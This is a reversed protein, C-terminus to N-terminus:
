VCQHPHQNWYKHCPDVWLQIIQHHAVKKIAAPKFFFIHKKNRAVGVVGPLYVYYEDMNNRKRQPGQPGYLFEKRAAPQGGRIQVM